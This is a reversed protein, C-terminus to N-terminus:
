SEEAVGAANAGSFGPVGFEFGVLDGDLIVLKDM